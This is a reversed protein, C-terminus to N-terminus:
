IGRLRRLEEYAEKVELFRRSAAEVAQAGQSAVKDPHHQAALKRFASRIEEDTAEPTLGLTAFHAEGKGFYRATVKRHAEEGVELVNALKRLADRESRKLEGDALALDYLADLLFARAPPELGDRVKRAADELEASSAIAAKLFNRVRNLSSGEFGLDQQFYERMVRVEERVVEGDVRALEVFLTCLQRAFREKAEDRAADEPAPRRPPPAPRRSPRDPRPPLPRTRDEWYDVSAHATDHLHGILYGLIALVLAALMSQALLGVGAGIM